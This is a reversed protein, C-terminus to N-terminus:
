LPLLSLFRIQTIQNYRNTPISLRNTSLNHWCFQIMYDKLVMWKRQKVAFFIIKLYLQFRLVRGQDCTAALTPIVFFYFMKYSSSVVILIQITWSRKVCSSSEQMITEVNSRFAWENLKYRFLELKLCYLPGSSRDMIPVFHENKFSRIERRGRIM